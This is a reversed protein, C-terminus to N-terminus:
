KSPLTEIWARLQANFAEPEEWFGAHSPMSRVVIAPANHEIWRVAMEHWDPRLFTVMSLSESLRRVLARHDSLMGSVTLQVAAHDPTREHMALLWELEDRSLARAVMNRATTTALASRDHLFQGIWTGLYYSEAGEFWDDAEDMALPKPTQDIAVLGRVRDTGASAFYEYASHIANSWAVLM